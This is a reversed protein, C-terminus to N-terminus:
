PPRGSSTHPVLQRQAASPQATLLPLGAYLQFADGNIVDGHLRQALAIALGTKGSATPGGIVLAPQAGASDDEEAAAGM